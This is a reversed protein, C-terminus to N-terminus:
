EQHTTLSRASSAAIRPASEVQAVVQTEATRNQPGEIGDMEAIASGVLYAAVLLGILTWEITRAIRTAITTKTITRTRSM